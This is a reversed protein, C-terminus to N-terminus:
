RKRTEKTALTTTVESGFRVRVWVKHVAGATYYSVSQVLVIRAVNQGIPHNYLLNDELYITNGDVYDVLGVEDEGATASYIHVKQKAGVSSADDVILFNNGATGAVAAEVSYIDVASTTTYAASSGRRGSDNYLYVEIDDDFVGAESEAITISMSYIQASNTQLAFNWDVTFTSSVAVTQSTVKIDYATNSIGAVTLGAFTPSDSPDLGQGTRTDSTAVAAKLKLIQPTGGAGSLVTVTLTDGSTVTISDTLAVTGAFGGAPITASRTESGDSVQIVTDLTPVTEMVYALNDLRVGGAMLEQHIVGDSNTGATATLFFPAVVNVECTRLAQTSTSATSTIILTNDSVTLTTGTGAILVDSLYGPLKGAEVAVKNKARQTGDASVGCVWAFVIFVGIVTRKM